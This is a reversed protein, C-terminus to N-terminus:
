LTFCTYIHSNFDHKYLVCLLTYCGWYMSVSDILTYRLCWVIATFNISNHLWKIKRVGDLIYSTVRQWTTSTKMQTNLDTILHWTIVGSAHGDERSVINCTLYDMDVETSLHNNNSTLTVRNIQKYWFRGTNCNHLSCKALNRIHKLIYQLLNYLAWWFYTSLYVNVFRSTKNSM